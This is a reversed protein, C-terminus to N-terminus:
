TADYTTWTARLNDCIRDNQTYLCYTGVALLPILFTALIPTSASWCLSSKIRSCMCAYGARFSCCCCRRSSSPPLGDDQFEGEGNEGGGRRTSMALLMGEEAEAALGEEEEHDCPELELGAPLQHVSSPGAARDVDDDGDNSNNNNSREIAVEPPQLEQQLDRQQQQQQQQQLDEPLLAQEHQGAATM